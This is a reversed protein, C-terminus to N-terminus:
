QNLAIKVDVAMFRRNVNFRSRAGDVNGGVFLAHAQAIYANSTWKAQGHLFTLGRHFRLSKAVLHIDFRLLPVDYELDRACGSQRNVVSVAPARVKMAVQRDGGGRAEAAIFHAARDISAACRHVKPGFLSGEQQLAGTLGAM